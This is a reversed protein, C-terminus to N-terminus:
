PFLFRLSAVTGLIATEAKLLTDTLRVLVMKGKRQGAEARAWAVERDSFGGEPGFVVNVVAPGPIKKLSESWDHFPMLGREPHFFAVWHEPPIHRFAHELREFGGVKLLRLTGSQKGAEIIKKSWRRTIKEQQEKSLRLESREAIVPHIEEAGLEQLKEVLDDMKNKQLLSALVRISFRAPALARASLHLITLSTRGEKSFATVEAVAETGNGDMLLCQGGPQIRILDKLHHTEGPDVTVVQGPSHLTEGCFFRRLKRGETM